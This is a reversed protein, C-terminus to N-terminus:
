GPFSFFLVVPRGRHDGPRFAGEATELTFDPVPGDSRAAAGGPWGAALALLAAAALPALRGSRAERYPISDM